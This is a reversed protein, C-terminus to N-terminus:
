PQKREETPETKQRKADFEIEVIAESACNERCVGCAICAEQDIRAGELGMAIAEVPCEYICTACFTCGRTVEYRKM